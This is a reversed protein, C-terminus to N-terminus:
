AFKTFCFIGTSVLHAPSQPAWGISSIPGQHGHLEFAPVAPVRVDLVIVSKGDQHFTAIYNPDKLNWSLRILAPSPESKQPPSTEYM